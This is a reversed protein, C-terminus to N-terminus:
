APLSLSGRRRRPESRTEEKSPVSMGGRGSRGMWEMGSDAGALCVSKKGRPRLAFVALALVCPGHREVGGCRPAWALKGHGVLVLPCLRPPKKLPLVRVSVTGFVAVGSYLGAQEGRRKTEEWESRACREGGEGDREEM